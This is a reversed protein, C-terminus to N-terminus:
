PKLWYFLWALCSSFGAYGSLYKRITKLSASIHQQVTYVSIGLLAAIEKHSKLEIRSLEFVTRQQPTLSGLAQRLLANLETDALRSDTDDPMEVARALIAEKLRTETDIRSLQNLLRNRMVTYIYSSFPLSPDLFRRNQWVAAFTDQFIDEAIENSKVFKLAFRMLRDKYLAYLAVFATEDDHILGTVWKREKEDDTLM